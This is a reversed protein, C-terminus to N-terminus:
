VSSTHQATHIPVCQVDISLSAAMIRLHVSSGFLQQTQALFIFVLSFWQLITISVTSICWTPPSTAKLYMEVIATNSQQLFDMSLLEEPRCHNVRRSMMPKDCTHCQGQYYSEEDISYTSELDRKAALNPFGNSQWLQNERTSGSGLVFPWTVSHSCLIVLLHQHSSIMRAKEIWLWTSRLQSLCHSLASFFHNPIIGFQSSRTQAPGAAPTRCWRCRWGRWRRGPCGQCHGRGSARWMWTWYGGFHRM